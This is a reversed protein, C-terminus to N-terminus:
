EEKGIIEAVKEAIADVQEDSLHVYMPTKIADKSTDEQDIGVMGKLIRLSRELRGITLTQIDDHKDKPDSMDEAGIGAMAKLISTMRYVRDETLGLNSLKSNAGNAAGDIGQLRDRCKVGNQDFNWVAEAIKQIDQDTVIDDGIEVQPPRLCYDWPYNYYSHVCVEQGTQDGGKGGSAKGREDIRAGGVKGNGLYILVHHKTNLLVDGRRRQSLPVAAFGIATLDRYLTGTYRPDKRNLRTGPDIAYICRYVLSSCDVEDVGWRNGQDYGYNGYCFEECKAALAEGYTAM